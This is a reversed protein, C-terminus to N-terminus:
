QMWLYVSTAIIMECTIALNWSKRRLVLMTDHCLHAQTSPNSAKMQMLCQQVIDTWSEGDTNREHHEVQLGFLFIMLLHTQKDQNAEYRIRTIWPQSKGKRAKYMPNIKWFDRESLLEDNTVTVVPWTQFFMSPNSTRLNNHHALLLKKPHKNRPKQKM